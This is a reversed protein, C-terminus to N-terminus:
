VGSFLGAAIASQCLDVVLWFLAMVVRFVLFVFSPDHNM